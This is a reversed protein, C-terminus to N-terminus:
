HQKKEFALKRFKNWFLILLPQKELQFETNYLHLLTQFQATYLETDAYELPACATTHSTVFAM